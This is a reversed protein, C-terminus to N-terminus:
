FPYCNYYSAGSNGNGYKGSSNKQGTVNQCVRNGLTWTTSAMCRRLNDSAYSIRYALNGESSQYVCLLSNAPDQNNTFIKCTFDGYVRTGADGTGPITIDLTDFRWPYNGNALYYSQAAQYISEGFTILQTYRSKLVALRYQPVAIAALIGIILVVVLLEILTFARKM